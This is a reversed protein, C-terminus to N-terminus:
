AEELTALPPLALACADRRACALALLAQLADRQEVSMFDAALSCSARKAIVGYYIGRVGLDNLREAEALQTRLATLLADIDRTLFFAIM